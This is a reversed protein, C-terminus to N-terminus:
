VKVNAVSRFYPLVRLLGDSRTVRPEWGLLTTARTIDPRRTRPDDIPIPEFVIESDSATLEIIERALQVITVEEPNGLNFIPEDDSERDHDPMIGSGGSGAPDLKRGPGLGIVRFIGEVLDDVYCFSRTQSGDGYVTVPEGRIAQGFFAPLARGDDARMRPGYTNFIRVIRADLRHSRRYAMTIAEAYRKAEDYVSRPGVPNVHGWYGEHQPTVEADGYVESSSALVFVSGHAKALGLAYYTGLAGVKLTHIPYRLYDKPSAPSAFHLVLDPRPLPVHGTTGAALGTLDIPRTVDHSYFRFREDDLLHRVNETRGTLLNDLCIVAYGEDLLRECIHSGLFGAGGTIMATPQEGAGM